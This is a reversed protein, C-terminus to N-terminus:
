SSCNWPERREFVCTVLSSQLIEENWSEQVHPWSVVGKMGVRAQWPSCASLASRTDSPRWRCRIRLQERSKRERFKHSSGSNDALLVSNCHGELVVVGVVVAAM